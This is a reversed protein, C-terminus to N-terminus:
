MSIINQNPFNDVVDTQVVVASSQKSEADGWFYASVRNVITDQAELREKKRKSKMREIRAYLTRNDYRMHDILNQMRLVANVKSRAVDKVTNELQVRDDELLVIKSQLNFIEEKLENRNEDIKEDDSGANENRQLNEFIAALEPVVELRFDHMLSDIKGNMKVAIQTELMEEFKELFTENLIGNEKVQEGDNVVVNNNVNMDHITSLQERISELELNLDSKIDNRFQENISQQVVSQVSQYVSRSIENELSMQLAIMQNEVTEELVEKIDNQKDFSDNMQEMTEKIVLETDKKNNKQQKILLSDLNEKLTIEFNEMMRKLSEEDLSSKQEKSEEKEEKEEEDDVKLKAIEEGLINRMDTVLLDRFEQKFKEIILPTMSSSDRRGGVYESDMSESRQHEHMDRETFTELMNGDDYGVSPARHKIFQFNNDDTLESSYKRKRETASNMMDDMNISFSYNTNSRASMLRNSVAPSLMDNSNVNMLHMHLDDGDEDHGSGFSGSMEQEHILDLTAQTIETQMQLKEAETTECQSKWFDCEAECRIINNQMQNNAMTYEKHLQEIESEYKMVSKEAKSKAKTLNILALNLSNVNESSTKLRKKLIVNQDTKFELENQLQIYDETLQKLQLHIVKNEEGIQQAEFHSGRM